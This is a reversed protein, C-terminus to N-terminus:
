NDGLWALYVMVHLLMHHRGCDLCMTTRTNIATTLLGMWHGLAAHLPMRNREAHVNAQVPVCYCGPVCHWRLM